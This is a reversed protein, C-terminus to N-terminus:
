DSVIALLAIDNEIALVTEADLEVEISGMDEVQEAAIGVGEFVKWAVTTEGNENETVLGIMVAVKEGAEYPTSLLLHVTVAGYSTDYGQVIIADYEYVNLTEAAVLAHLDVEEGFYAEVSEAEALKEIQADRIVLRDEYVTEDDHIIRFVFGSDEPLEQATAEIRALDETKKSPADEALAAACTLCLVLALLMCAFKKM